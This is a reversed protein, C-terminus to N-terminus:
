AVNANLLIQDILEKIRGLLSQRPHQEEHSMKAFLSLRFWDKCLDTLFRKGFHDPGRAGADTEEHISESFQAKNLIVATQM